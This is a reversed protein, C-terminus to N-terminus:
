ALAALAAPLDRYPGTHIQAGPLVSVDAGDFGAGGLLVAAHGLDPADALFRRAHRGHVAGVIVLGAGLADVARELARTPTRAGLVHVKWGVTAAVACAALLGLDHEEAEPTAGIAVRDAAATSIRVMRLLRPRLTNTAFHERAIVRPDSEWGEAVWRLVPMLVTDLATVLDLRALTDDVVLDAAPGDFRDVAQQLRAVLDAADSDGRSPVADGAARQARVERAAASASWGRDILGLMRTVRQVDEETYLRHGGDSREPELLDYRREWARLTPVTVGTRRSLEGIRLAPVDVM